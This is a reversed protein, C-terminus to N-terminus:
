IKLKQIEVKLIGRSYDARISDPDIGRIFFSRKFPGYCIENRLLTLGAREVATKSASIELYDDTYSIEIDSSNCGPLEIYLIYRKEDHYVDVAFSKHMTTCKPFNNDDTVELFLQAMVKKHNIM